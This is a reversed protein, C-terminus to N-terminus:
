RYIATAAAAMDQVVTKDGYVSVSTRVRGYSQESARLPSNAINGDFTGDLAFDLFCTEPVEPSSTGPCYSTAPRGNLDVTTTRSSAPADAQDVELRVAFYQEVADKRAYFACEYPSSVATLRAASWGAPLRGLLACPDYDAGPLIGVAYRRLPVKLDRAAVLVKAAVDGAPACNDGRFSDATVRVYDTFMSASDGGVGAAPLRMPVILECEEDAVPEKERLVTGGDVPHDTAASPARVNLVIRITEARAPGSHIRVQCSEPSLYPAVQAVQGYEALQARSVFGCPDVTRIVAAAQLEGRQRPTLDLGYDGITVPARAAAEPAPTGSVLNTCGTLLATAVGIALMGRM